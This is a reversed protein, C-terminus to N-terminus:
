KNRRIEEILPKRSEQISEDSKRKSENNMASQAYPTLCAERVRKDKERERAHLLSAHRGRMDMEKVEKTVLCLAATPPSYGTRLCPCSPAPSWLDILQHRLKLSSIILTFISHVIEKM